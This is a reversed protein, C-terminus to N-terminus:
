SWERDEHASERGDQRFDSKEGKNNSDEKNATNLILLFVGLNLLPCRFPLFHFHLKIHM